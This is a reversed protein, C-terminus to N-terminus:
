SPTHEMSKLRSVMAEVRTRVLENKQILHARESTLQEQRDRLSHNEERLQKCLAVLEHLREELSQLEKEFMHRLGKNNRCLYAERCLNDLM